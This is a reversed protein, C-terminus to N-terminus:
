ADLGSLTNWDSRISMKQSPVTAFPLDNLLFISKGRSIQVIAFNVVSLYVGAGPFFCTLFM